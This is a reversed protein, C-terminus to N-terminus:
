GPMFFCGGGGGGFGGPFGGGGGPGRGGGGGFGRGGFMRTHPDCNLNPPTPTLTQPEPNLPSPNPTLTYPQSDLTYPTSNLISPKPHLIYPPLTSPAPNLAALTSHLIAAPPRWLVCPGSLRLSSDPRRLIRSIGQLSYPQAKLRCPLDDNQFRPRYNLVPPQNPSSWLLLRISGGAMM